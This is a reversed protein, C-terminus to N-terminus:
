KLMANICRFLIHLWSIDRSFILCHLSLERQERFIFNNLLVDAINSRRHISLSKAALCFVSNDFHNMTSVSKMTCLRNVINLQDLLKTIISQLQCCHPLVAATQIYCTLSWVLSTCADYIIYLSVYIIFELQMTFDDTFIIYKV